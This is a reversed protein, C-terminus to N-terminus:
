MVGSPLQINLDRAVKVQVEAAEMLSFLHAMEAESNSLEIAKKFAKIAESLNGRQVEITGRIEYAYQCTSDVSLAEDLLEITKDVKGNWQLMMLGRHVVNNANRPQVEQAKKFYKEAEEFKGQDSLAQAFLILADSCEPFKEITKEFGVKADSLFTLNESVIAKRHVAYYKQVYSTPFNPSLEISKDFKAIAEDLKELQLLQQGYHHYVDSNLPDIKEAQMFYSLSDDNSERQMRLSGERILATARLAKDVNEMKALRSLDDLAGNTIGHLLRMTGRLLLTEPIYPSNTENALEEDCLAIIQDYEKTTLCNKAREFASPKELIVAGNEGIEEQEPKIKVGLEDYKAPKEGNFRLAVPDNVFGALYNEIYFQSPHIPKKVKYEQSAKFKGLAKLVRDAAQLYAASQFGEILCAKTIDELAERYKELTEYAKSRRALAKSYKPNLQLAATCDEVVKDYKKQNEYAAARNQYFTSMDTKIDPPCTKIAETYCTIAEEYCGDKFFKNGKNKAAQAIDQRSQPKEKVVKSTTKTTGSIEANDGQGISDKGNDSNKKNKYFWLGAVGLAVPAGVYLAIEWKSWGETLEKLQNSVKTFTAM